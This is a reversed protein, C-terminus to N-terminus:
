KAGVTWNTEIQHYFWGSQSTLMVKAHLAYLLNDFGFGFADTWEASMWDRLQIQFYISLHLPHDSKLIFDYILLPMLSHLLCLFQNTINNSNFHFYPIVISIELIHLWILITIHIVLPPRGEDPQLTWSWFTQFNAFHYLKAYKLQWFHKLADSYVFVLDFHCRRHDILV